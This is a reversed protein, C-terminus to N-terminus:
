KNHFFFDQAAVWNDNKLVNKGEPTDHTYM